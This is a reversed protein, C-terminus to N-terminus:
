YGKFPNSLKLSSVARKVQPNEIGKSIDAKYEKKEEAESLLSLDSNIKERDISNPDIGQTVLYNTLNTDKDQPQPTNQLGRNKNNIKM